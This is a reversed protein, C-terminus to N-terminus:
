GNTKEQEDMDSIVNEYVEDLTDMLTLGDIQSTFINQLQQLLETLTFLLVQTTCQLEAIQWQIDAIVIHESKDLETQKDM